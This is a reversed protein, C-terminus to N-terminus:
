HARIDLTSAHVEIWTEPARTACHFVLKASDASPHPVFPFAPLHCDGCSLFGHHIISPNPSHTKAM